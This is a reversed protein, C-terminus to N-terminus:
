RNATKAASKPALPSVPLRRGKSASVGGLFVFCMENTTQEGYTVRQPPDFPNNPNDSSNDYIAEVQFKSGAKVRVPEKFWYTEQWNYDWDNIAVLTTPNGAPPTMTVKISKGLLHMHPMISYLTFDETAWADGTLEFHKNGAPISFFLRLPGVGGSGGALVSGQYVKGIPKKAFYLGIQTREKEVRGNRHFHVQVVVDSEKPLLYGTGAPLYRPMQGPAWGSLGGKPVFGVGMAVTYGPGRDFQSEKPHDKDSVAPKKDRALRELKRGEGATDIFQLTHHVIRPNTPRVEIATVFKDETLNTPLVFCRFLDRGSPGLTFEEAVTLVLDPTGLQWGQPFTRPPPADKADGAPTGGDVWAALTSIDKDSLGRENHFGPSDVPKWPPMQRNRTYTKIDDAWNVAQRYSMLSFPGVEGPRHCSQCNNQLIPLVERYYTVTGTVAKTNEPRQIPCGVAVTAPQSVPRGSLIEGLVQELNRQSPQPHKKLREIYGDDIRGRYRLVFDGDLVFVEPTIEAKLADAAKLHRDRVVPFPINFDRAHKAVQDPTEDENTTLGVFAVHKGLEKALAALPQSYSKSVPCEFSLFVLVIAKKDKFDYLALTKGSPEAFTLNAIKKGLHATSPKPEAASPELMFLVALTGLVAVFGSRMLM